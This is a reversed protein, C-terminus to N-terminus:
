DAALAAFIPGAHHAIRRRAQDAMAADQEVGLYDIGLRAAACGLSGSGAFPDLVGGGPPVALKLLWECLALPKVCPNLNREGPRLGATRERSSSKSTYFFRSPGANNDREVRPGAAMRWTPSGARSVSSVGGGNAGREGAQEDLLRVPCGEACAWAPVTERGDPDAYHNISDKGGIPAYVTNTYGNTGNRGPTNTGKVRRVGVERCADLHSLAINAPWRGAHQHYETIKRHEGGGYTNGDGYFGGASRGLGRDGRHNPDDDGTAIRGAETNLGGAGPKKAVIVPEWAPKLLTKHKPFGQGHLWMLTDFIVFGADEIAVALRHWTRTGGFAMLVGGPKLVRFAERLWSEHWEQMALANALTINPFDPEPCRCPSSSLRWKGCGRCRVNNRKEFSPRPLRRAGDRMAVEGMGDGWRRGVHPDADWPADWDKGMFELGYPPDTCVADVSAPEMGAMVARCDGVVMRQRM